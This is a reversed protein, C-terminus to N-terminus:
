IPVNEISLAKDPKEKRLFKILLDRGMPNSGVSGSVQMGAVCLQVTAGQAFGSTSFICLSILVVLLAFRQMNGGQPVSYSEGRNYNLVEARVLFFEVSNNLLGM